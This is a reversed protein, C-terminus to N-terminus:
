SMGIFERLVQKANQDVITGHCPIIMDWGQGFVRAM